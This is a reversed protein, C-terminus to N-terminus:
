RATPNPTSASAAEITNLENQMASQFDNLADSLGMPYLPAGPAALQHNNAPRAMAIANIPFELDLTNPTRIIVM